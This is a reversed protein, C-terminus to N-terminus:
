SECVISLVHLLNQHYPYILASSINCNFISEVSQTSFVLSAMQLSDLESSSAIVMQTSWVGGCMAGEGICALGSWDGCINCLEQLWLHWFAPGQCFLFRLQETAEKKFFISDWTPNSLWIYVLSLTSQWWWQCLEWYGLAHQTYALLHCKSDATCHSCDDKPPIKLSSKPDHLYILCAAQAPLLAASM